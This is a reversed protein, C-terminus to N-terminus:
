PRRGVNLDLCATQPFIGCLAPQIPGAHQAFTEEYRNEATRTGGSDNLPTTRIGITPAYMWPFSQKKKIYITYITYITILIIYNTNLFLAFLTLFIFIM